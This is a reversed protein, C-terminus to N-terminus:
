SPTGILDVGKPPKFYFQRANVPANNTINLNIVTKQGLKDFMLMQRLRGTRDLGLQINKFDSSGRHPKLNFWDLGATKIAMKSVQFQSQPSAKRTLIAIPTSAIAARMPKVTVQELDKDYIWVNKGDAIIEQPDPTAYVWRFKGPRSLYLQGAAKQIIKGKKDYVQQNFSGKLSTVKTFFNDLRTRAADQAATITASYGLAVLLAGTVFTKAVTKIAIKKM